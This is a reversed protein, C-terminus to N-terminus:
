KTFLNKQIMKILNWMYTIDFSIQRERVKMMWYHYDRPGDTSWRKIKNCYSQNFPLKLIKICDLKGIKEKLNVYKIGQKIFGKKCWTVFINGECNGFHSLQNLVLSAAMVICTRDRVESLPNLIWRRQWLSCLLNCIHSLDLTATATTYAQLQLESKVGLRPVEM